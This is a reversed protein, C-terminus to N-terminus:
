PACFAIGEPLWGQATTFQQYLAFDTTFRHNPALTQGDNYMRYVPTTAAPCAGGVPVAAHFAIKEYIWNPNLKLGECEVPNATYFHSSKAGFTGPTTFFRCVPVSGTAPAGFATFQRQTRVFAGGYAGGDLGAIEDADATMFYHGFGANYYEVVAVENAGISLAQAQLVAAHANVIGQGCTAASCTSEAPFPKATGVIAARVQAPTLQPAVSLMLSAVGSVIPTAFSTGTVGIVSYNAATTAGTNSLVAILGFDPAGIAGGNGGPAAVDVTAGYNSYSTRNGAPTTAAVSIVSACSAPFHVDANANENGAAAVIARLGTPSLLQAILADEGPSCVGEGGLSLNVVQAPFPNNPVGPVTRGAAWAMADFIDSFDGGCKGLVRLPLIRAAWDLGAVAQGNNSVAGIVGAVSTGHWSSGDLECDDFNGSDLDAQSIWDGPDTPDADRGNGDNATPVDSVFDYGPLLRPALDPHPLVGSDLVAVVVSASGTTVDWAAYASVSSAGNTLYTQSQLNTDNPILARRVRRDPVALKAGGRVLAAAAAARADAGAPLEVLHAGQAMRRVVRAEIGADRSLRTMRAAPAFAAEVDADDFQVILRPGASAPLAVALLLPAALRALSSRLPDSPM